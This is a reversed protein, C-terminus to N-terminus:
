DLIEPTQDFNLLYYSFAHDFKLSMLEVILLIQHVIPIRELSIALVTQHCIKRISM